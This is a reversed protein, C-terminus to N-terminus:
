DIIKCTQQGRMLKLLNKKYMGQSERQLCDHRSCISVSLTIEEKEIKHRKKGRRATNCHNSDTASCQIYATLASMGAKKRKKSFLMRNELMLTNAM